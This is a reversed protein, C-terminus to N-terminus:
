FITKAMIIHNRQSIVIDNRGDGNVDGIDENTNGNVKTFVTDIPFLTYEENRPNLPAKFWYGSISIDPIDDANLNGVEFGENGLTDTNLTKRQWQDDDNQFIIQLSNPNKHRIIVDNNQDGDMDLIRTEKAHFGVIEAIQDYKWPNSVM